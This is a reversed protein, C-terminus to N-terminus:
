SSSGTHHQISTPLPSMPYLFPTNKRAALIIPFNQIDWMKPVINIAPKKSSM